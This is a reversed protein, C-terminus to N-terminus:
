VPLTFTFTSGVGWESEVRIEGGLREVLRKSIALGLGTGEYNRALGTELQQFTVFLKDLDEPKIGIGTDTVRTVLQGDRTQCEVRVEGKETFKVANNVLNVLIQKVRRRDSTIPGVEPAVETSLVLEKKKTLPIMTRVVEEVVQCMPFTETVIEIEGAEIKSIDLIDNILALLHSASDCAMGLQKTQEENLPGALGQLIIGTFGIISNLPTRLEHSMTALFASKAQNAMEAHEKALELERAAQKRATIDWNVGIMRVPEGREDRNVAGMGQLHRVTGDPCVVRFETNFDQEGRLTSQIEAEATERDQPHLRQSWTEYVGQFDEEEVGFLAYMPEDWVLVDNKVDWDWVGIGAARTALELRESLEQLRGENRKRVTIDRVVGTFMRRNGVDAQSVALDLPFTSGDKRRGELERGLGIIRAEGTELYRALYGDHEGHYPVPMLMKVNQGVLESSAYGFIQEVAPNVTEIIGQEDIIIIGDVITSMVARIRGESKRAALAARQGEAVERRVDEYMRAHELAVAVQDLLPQMTEIRQLTEEKEEVRSGTAMIALVRDKQKIPVFYSVRDEYSEPGDVTQEFREDWGEIVQTEGTRAVEAVINDDDLDYRLGIRRHAIEPRSLTGRSGAYRSLGRVVEVKQTHEDVLAVMLSRFAGAEIIQEAIHDLVQELELSSLIHQAIQHFADLQRTKEALDQSVRSLQAKESESEVVRQRLENLEEILQAQTKQTDDM